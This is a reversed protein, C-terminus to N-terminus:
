MTQFVLLTKYRGIAGGPRFEDDDDGEETVTLYNCIKAKKGDDDDGDDESRKRKGKAKKKHKRKM